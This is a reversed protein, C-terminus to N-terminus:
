IGKGRLLRRALDIRRAAETTHDPDLARFPEGVRLLVHFATWASVAARPAADAGRLRRYREAVVRATDPSRGALLEVAAFSGLDYCAPALMVRDLDILVPTGRENVVVQDASFDGHSTVPIEDFRHVAGLVAASAEEFAACLEAPRAHGGDGCPGGPRVPFAAVGDGAATLAAAVDLAPLGRGDARPSSTVAAPRITHLRALAGATATLVAPDPRRGDRHATRLSRALDEGDVLPQEVAREGLRHVPLVPAGLRHLAPLLVAAPPRQAWVRLVTPRGQPDTRALVVRRWPNYSLVEGSVRGSAAVVGEAALASFLQRDLGVPGCFLRAGDRGPLEATHLPYGRRGARRAIKEAKVAAAPAYAALWWPQTRAASPEESGAVVRAVASFGPKYRLHELRPTPLGTRRLLERVALSGPIDGAPAFLATLDPEASM